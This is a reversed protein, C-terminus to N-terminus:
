HQKPFDFCNKVSIWLVCMLASHPCLMCTKCPPLIFNGSLELFKPNTPGHMNVCEISDVL